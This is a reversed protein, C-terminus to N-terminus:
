HERKGWTRTRRPAQRSHPRDGEGRGAPHQARTQGCAPPWKQRRLAGLLRKSLYLTLSFLWEAFVRSLLSTCTPSTPPPIPPLLVLVHHNRLATPHHGGDLGQSQSTELSTPGSCQAATMQESCAGSEGNLEGCGAARLQLIFGKLRKPTRFVETWAIGSVASAKLLVCSNRCLFKCSLLPPMYPASFAM